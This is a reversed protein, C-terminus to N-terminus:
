DSIEFIFDIEVPSDMPLVPVGVAARAHRGEEGFVELMLDSAGNLVAPQGTFDASSAIFGTLKVCRKVKWLNGAGGLHSSLVALANIAAQRAEGVAEEAGLDKGVKGTLHLRGERTPLMGSLFLLDGTRV